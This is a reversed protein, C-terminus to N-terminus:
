GRKPVGLAALGGTGLVPVVPRKSPWLCSAGWPNAAWRWCWGVVRLLVPSWSCPRQEEIALACNLDLWWFDHGTDYILYYINRGTYSFYVLDNVMCALTWWLPNSMGWHGWPVRPTTRQPRPRKNPPRCPTSVRRSLWGRKLSKASDNHGGRLLENEERFPCVLLFSCWGRSRM